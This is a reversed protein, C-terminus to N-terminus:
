PTARPAAFTQHAAHSMERIADRAEAEKAGESLVVIYYRRDNGYRDKLFVVGADGFSQQYSGAKHAVRVNQPVGAPIRDELDTGTMAALMESSLEESTFSPGAIRELMLLVDNPTTTNPDWYGTSRAGIRYMEAQINEQGLYRTLMKWATNDSRNVLLYACERLTLISGVQWNHLIGSGYARVDSPLISIEDELGVEGRDAARYLTILAPLKGISAAFFTKNANMRVTRGSVPDFVVAGYYGEHGAAIRRLRSELAAANFVTESSEAPEPLRAVTPQLVTRM